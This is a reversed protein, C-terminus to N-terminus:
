AAAQEAEGTQEIPPFMLNMRPIGTVNEWKEANKRSVVRKGSEIAAILSQSCGLLGALEHQTLKNTERYQQIPHSM